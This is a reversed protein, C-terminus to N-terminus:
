NSKTLKDIINELEKIRLKLEVIEEKLEVVKLEYRSVLDDIIGKYLSFTEELNQIHSTNINEQSLRHESKDKLFASFEKRFWVLFIGITTTVSYWHEKIFFWLQSEPSQIM